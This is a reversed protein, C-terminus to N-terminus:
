KNLYVDLIGDKSDILPLIYNIYEPKITSNKTDIYELPLYKVKNAIQDINVFDFYFKNDKKKIVAVKNTIGKIASKLAFSSLNIAMKQEFRSSIISNARQLLSLEFYRTPFNLKEKIINALSIAVGGLQPHNFADINNNQIFDNDESKIGESVVVLCHKKKTYIDKVKKIFDELDFTVEPVYILDPSLNKVKACISSAALFGSERGMTEIINVRGTEYSLDDLAIEVVSNIIFKASSAFGLSFESEM